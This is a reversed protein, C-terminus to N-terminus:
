EWLDVNSLAQIRYSPCEHQHPYALGCSQHRCSRLSRPSLTSIPRLDSSRAGLSEKSVWLPRMLSAAIVKANGTHAYALARELVSCLEFVQPTPKGSKTIVPLFRERIREFLSTILYTTWQYVHPFAQLPPHHTKM